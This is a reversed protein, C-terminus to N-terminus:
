AKQTLLSLNAAMRRKHDEALHGYIKGILVGGDRHGLWEATTMFDVGNMVCQSTFFHRFAHFTM